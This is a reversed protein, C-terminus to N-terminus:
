EPFSAHWYQVVKALRDRSNTSIQKVSQEGTKEQGMFLNYILGHPFRKIKILVAKVLAM